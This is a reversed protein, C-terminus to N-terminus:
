GDSVESHFESYNPEQTTLDPVSGILDMYESHERLYESLEDWMENHRPHGGSITVADDFSVTPQGKQQLLSFTENVGDYETSCWIDAQADEEIDGEDAMNLINKSIKKLGSEDNSPVLRIDIGIDHDSTIEGLSKLQKIQGGNDSAKELNSLDQKLRSVRVKRVRGNEIRNIIRNTTYPNGSIKADSDFDSLKKKVYELLDQKIGRNKYKRLFILAKGKEKTTLLAIYFPYEEADDELRTKTRSASDTDLLDAYIGSYGVQLVGEFAEDGKSRYADATFTKEPLERMNRILKFHRGDSPAATPENLEDFLEEFIGILGGAPLSTLNIPDGNKAVTLTYPVLKAGAM